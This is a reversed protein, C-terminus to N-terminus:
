MSTGGPGPMEFAFRRPERDARDLLREFEGYTDPFAGRVKASTAALNSLKRLAFDFILPMQVAHDPGEVGSLVIREIHEGHRRVAELALTTGYSHAVLSLKEAGVARRLDELDDASAATNFSALDVDKARWHDACARARAILADRFGSKKLFADAPPPTGRPV